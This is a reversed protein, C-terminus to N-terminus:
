RAREFRNAASASNECKSPGFRAGITAKSRLPRGIPTVTAISPPNNMTVASSIPRRPVTGTAACWIAILMALRHKM